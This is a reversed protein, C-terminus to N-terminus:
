RNIKILKYNIPKINEILYLLAQNAKSENSCTFFDFRIQNFEDWTHVTLHSESLLYIATFGQPEFKKDSYNLVKVQAMKIMEDMIEKIKDYTPFPKVFADLIYHTGLKKTIPNFTKNIQTIKKKIKNPYQQSAHHIGKNYYNFSLKKKNFYEWDILNDRPNIDNSSICFSYHGGAFTPTYVQFFSVFKFVSKQQKYITLINNENWNFNDANFCLMGKPNLLKKIKEYFSTRFLPSSQNFDTSDIIVIDFKNNKQLSEEVFNVGNQILLELKPNSFVSSLNPFFKKSVDVVMQDLEVMVCKNVNSHKLVERATGGDGGGIILVNIPRNFYNIVPHAIMEHYNNEDKESLQIDNDIVLIKGFNVTQFVEITQYESKGKFLVQSIPYEVIFKSIDRYSNSPSSSNIIKNVNKKGSSLICFIIEEIIDDDENYDFGFIPELKAWIKFYYTQFINDLKEVIKKDKKKLSKRIRNIDKCNEGSLKIIEWFAKEM